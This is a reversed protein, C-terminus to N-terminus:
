IMWLASFKNGKLDTFLDDVVRSLDQCWVSIDMPLKNFEFLGFSYLFGYDPSEEGFTANALVRFEFSCPFRLQM